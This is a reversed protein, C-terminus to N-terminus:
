VPQSEVISLMGSTPVVRTLAFDAQALLTAFEAETRERGTSTMVLMQLDMLKGPDPENSPKLVADVILLTGDRRIARRCNRLIKLSDEDNWDHIIRKMIYADAGEPVSTFFDVGMIECRDAIPGSRLVAAGAVVAPQDVLVGRLKANASLIAHLM